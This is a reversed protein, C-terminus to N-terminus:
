RGRGCRDGDGDHTYDSLPVTGRELTEHTGDEKHAGLVLPDQARTCTHGTHARAHAQESSDATNTKFAGAAHTFFYIM